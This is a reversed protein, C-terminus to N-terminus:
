IIYTSIYAPALKPMDLLLLQTDAEQFPLQKLLSRHRM